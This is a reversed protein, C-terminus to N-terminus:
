DWCITSMIESKTSIFRLLKNKIPVGFGYGFAGDVIKYADVNSVHLKVKVGAKHILHFCIQNQTQRIDNNMKWSTGIWKM